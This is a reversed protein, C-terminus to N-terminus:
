IEIKEKCSQLAKKIWALATSEAKGVIGAVEALPKEELYYLMLANRHKKSPVHMLFKLLEEKKEIRDLDKDKEGKDLVTTYHPNEKIKENDNLYQLNTILFPRKNTGNKVEGNRYYKKRGLQSRIYDLMDLKATRLLLAIDVGEDKFPCRIWAENVLEDIEFLQGWIDSIKSAVERLEKIADKFKIKYQSRM